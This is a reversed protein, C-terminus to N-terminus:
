TDALGYTLTVFTQSITLTPDTAPDGTGANPREETKRGMMSTWESEGEHGGEQQQNSSSTIRQQNEGRAGQDRGAM